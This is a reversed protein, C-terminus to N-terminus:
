GRARDSLLNMAASHNRATVMDLGLLEAECETLENSPIIPLIYGSARGAFNEPSAYRIGNDQHLGKAYARIGAEIWKADYVLLLPKVAKGFRGTDVSGICDLWVRSLAYIDAAVPAADVVPKKRKIAKAVGYDKLCDMVIERIEDREM